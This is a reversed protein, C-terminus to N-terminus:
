EEAQAGKSPSAVGPEESAHPWLDQPPTRDANARKFEEYMERGHFVEALEGLAYEFGPRLLALHALALLSLQRQGEDFSLVYRGFKSLQPSLPDTAM